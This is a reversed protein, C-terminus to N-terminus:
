SLTLDCFSFGVLLADARFSVEASRAFRGSLFSIVLRFYILLADARDFRKGLLLVLPIQQYHGKRWMRGSLCSPILAIFDWGDRWFLWECSWVIHARVPLIHPDGWGPFFWPPLPPLQFSRYPNILRSGFHCWSQDIRVVMHCLPSCGLHFLDCHRCPSWREFLILQPQVVELSCWIFDCCSCADFWVFVSCCQHTSSSVISGSIGVLGSRLYTFWDLEQLVCTIVHEGGLAASRQKQGRSVHTSKPYLIQCSASWGPYHWIVFHFDLSCHMLEFHFKQLDPLDALCFRFWWDFIFWCHM